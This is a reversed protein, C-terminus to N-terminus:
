CLFPPVAAPGAWGPVYWESISPFDPARRALYRADLLATCYNNPAFFGLTNTATQPHKVDHKCTAQVGSIHAPCETWRHIVVNNDVAIAMSIRASLIWHPYPTIPLSSFRTSAM